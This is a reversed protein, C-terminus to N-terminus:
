KARDKAKKAEEEAVVRHIEQIDEDDDDFMPDDARLEGSCFKEVIAKIAESEADYMNQAEQNRFAFPKLRKKALTTEEHEKYAADIIPM